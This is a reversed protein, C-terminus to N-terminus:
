DGTDMNWEYTVEQFVESQSVEKFGTKSFLHLSAANSQKIKAFFKRVGIVKVCFDMMLQLVEKGYGKSRFSKEAIMLEIEGVTLDDPDPFYVNTDGIMASVENSTKEMTERDLVIFTCKDEDKVWKRQMEYEEDLSLPESGTLFLLEPDQMWTHYKQVHDPKYPTLIVRKGVIVRNKADSSIGMKDASECKLEPSLFVSM